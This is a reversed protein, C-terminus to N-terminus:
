TILLRPLATLVPAIGSIAMSRRCSDAPETETMVAVERALRRSQVEALAARIMIDQNALRDQLEASDLECVVDGKEVRTGDPKSAVVEMRGEVPNFVPIGKPTAFEAPQGQALVFATAGITAVIAAFGMRILNSSM